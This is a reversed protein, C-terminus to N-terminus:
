WGPTGPPARQVMCVGHPTRRLHACVTGARLRDSAPLDTQGATLDIGTQGAAFAPGTQEAAPGGAELPPVVTDQALPQFDAAPPWRWAASLGAAFILAACAYAILVGAFPLYHTISSPHPTGSVGGARPAGAPLEGSPVEDHMLGCEDSAAALAAPFFVGPPSRRIPPRASNDGGGVGQAVMTAVSWRHLKASDRMFRVYYRRAEVDNRSWSPSCNRRRPRFRATWCPLPWITSRASRPQRSPQTFRQEHAARRTCRSM